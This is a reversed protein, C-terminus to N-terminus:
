RTLTYMHKWDIHTDIATEDSHLSLLPKTIQQEDTYHTHGIPKM